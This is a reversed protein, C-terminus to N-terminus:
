LVGRQEAVDDEIQRQQSVAGLLDRALELAYADVDLIVESLHNEEDLVGFVIVVKGDRLTAAGKTTRNM